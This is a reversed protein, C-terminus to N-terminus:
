CTWVFSITVKHSKRAGNTQAIIYDVWNQELAAYISKMMQHKTKTWFLM